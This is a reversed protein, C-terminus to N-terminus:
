PEGEPAFPEPASPPAPHPAPRVVLTVGGVILATGVVLGLGVPEGLLFHGGLVGFIPSLLTVTTTQTAGVRAILRFFLLYAVATSLGTLGVVSAVVPATWSPAPATAVAVPALVAGAVTMMGM